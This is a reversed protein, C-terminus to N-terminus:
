GLPRREVLLVALACVPNPGAGGRDLPGDRLGRPVAEAPSETSAISASVRREPESTAFPAFRFAGSKCPYVFRARCARLGRGATDVLQPDSTRAWYRGGRFGGSIHPNRKRTLCRPLLRPRLIAAAVPKNRAPYSESPSAVRTSTRWSQPKGDGDHRLFRSRFLPLKAGGTASPWCNTTGRRPASAPGASGVPSPTGTGAPFTWRFEAVSSCNSSSGPIPGIVVSNNKDGVAERAVAREPM